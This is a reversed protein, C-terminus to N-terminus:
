FDMWLESGEEPNEAVMVGKVKRVTTCHFIPTPVTRVKRMRLKRIEERLEQEHKYHIMTVIVMGMVGISFGIMYGTFM